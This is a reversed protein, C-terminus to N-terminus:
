QITRPRHPLHVDFSILRLLFPRRWSHGLASAPGALAHVSGYRRAVHCQRLCRSSMRTRGNPGDQGSEVPTTPRVHCLCDRDAALPASFPPVGPWTGKGPHKWQMGEILVYRYRKKNRTGQRTRTRCHLGTPRGLGLAQICAHGAGAQAPWQHACARCRSAHAKCTGTRTSDQMQDVHEMATLEVGWYITKLEAPYTKCLDQISCFPCQFFIAPFMIVYSFNPM